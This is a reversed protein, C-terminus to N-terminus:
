IPRNGCPDRPRPVRHILFRRLGARGSRPVDGPWPPDHTGISHRRHLRHRRISLSRGNGIPRRFLRSRLRVGGGDHIKRRADDTASRTFHVADSSASARRARGREDQRRPDHLLHSFTRLTTTLQYEAKHDLVGDMAVVQVGRTSAIRGLLGVQVDGLAITGLSRRVPPRSFITM